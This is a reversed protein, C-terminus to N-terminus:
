RRQAVMPQSADFGLIEEDTIQVGEEQYDQDTNLNWLDFKSGLINRAALVAALMSHDQNNYRHQGNRGVLQLNPLTTLFERVIALGREYKDDYVPYAKRVRVVTGDTIRAGNLVGIEAMERKGMALLQEDTMSWLDDGESCFYEMGLCSMSPDPSMEPSWNTYNQIRGVRVTPSHIYIWNDPFLDTGEVMLAVTLFDRYSFDNAANLVKEPPAPDLSRLMDRIPLTSIYHSGSFRRGGATVATVGGPQWHIKEVGTNLHVKNGQGQLIDSMRSWMMGPGQRPYLFETTLTRLESKGEKPPFLANRAASMLSLGRIRQAAWDARIQECPMGWVKETYSKFFKLFLREGFRNCVWSAFDDEPMKPSIRARLYSIGCRFIEWLGLNEIVNKPELPYHYFKSNYFIRSLRPRVIMDEDLIEKWIKEVLSVKTFFRHGGLDFLYGRYSETRALGGVMHYQELIVSKVDHRNLEYAATLGAPGAGLVVVPAVKEGGSRETPLPSAEAFGSVATYKCFDDNPVNSGPYDKTQFKSTGQISPDSKGRHDQSEGHPM